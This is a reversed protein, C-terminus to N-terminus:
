VRELVITGDEVKAMEPYGPSRRDEDSTIALKRGIRIQQPEMQQAVVVASEDGLAGAFAIGRLKGMVIINGTAIVQADRNVDGLVLVDGNHEIRQGSRLHKRIVLLRGWTGPKNEQSLKRVNRLKKELLFEEVKRLLDGDSTDVLFYAGEMLRSNTIDRLRELVERHDAGEQIRVIVVPLTTGKIEIM